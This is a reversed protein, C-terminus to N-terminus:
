NTFFILLIPVAVYFGTLLIHRIQYIATHRRAFIQWYILLVPKLLEIPDFTVPGLDYWTRVGRNYSGFFYLGALALITIFYLILIV